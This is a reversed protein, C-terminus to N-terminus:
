SARARAALPAIDPPVSRGARERERAFDDLMDALERDARDDLGTIASLPLGFSVCRLVGKRWAAPELAYGCPGMAAAVLRHDNTRLADEALSRTLAVSAAVTPLYPLARLVARREHADGRDYVRRLLATVDRNPAAGVVVDLLLLRAADDCTWTPWAALRARGCVRGASAFVALQRAPGAGVVARAAAAPWHASGARAAKRFGHELESLSPHLPRLM